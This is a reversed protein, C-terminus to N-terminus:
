TRQTNKEIIILLNQFANPSVVFEGQFPRDITIILFVMSSAMLAAASITILHLYFNMGFLFNIGITLFTAFLIVMWLERNLESASFHIRQQRASYLNKIEELMDQILLQESITTIKSISIKDFLNEVIQNGQTNDDKSERMLPWEVRIVQDIYNKIETQIAVRQEPHLMKSDRYISALSNAETQVAADANGINNILHLATLGVLVGYIISLLAGINGIVANDERRLKIPIFKKVAFVALISVTIFFISLFLFITLNSIHYFFEPM